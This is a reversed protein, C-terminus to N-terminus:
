ARRSSDSIRSLGASQSQTCLLHFYGFGAAVDSPGARLVALRTAFFANSFDQNPAMHLLPPGRSNLLRAPAFHFAPLFIVDVPHRDEWEANRKAPRLRVINGRQQV